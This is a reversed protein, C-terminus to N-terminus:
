TAVFAWDVQPLPPQDGPKAQSVRGMSNSLWVFLKGFELGNLMLPPREGSLRALTTMNAGSVGVAFTTVGKAQEEARLRQVATEFEVTDTPAGDTILFLWPRYFAIGHRKYEDKRQRLMDLGLHIAAGMATLGATGLTPAVFDGAAIFDQAVTAQTGFTVMALDVRLQALPDHKLGQEFQKLGANLESLPTGGMSGSVDLLLVCPCRPEANDAFEIEPSIVAM